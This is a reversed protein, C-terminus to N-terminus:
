NQEVEEEFDGGAAAIACFTALPMLVALSDLCKGFLAFVSVGAIGAFAGASLIPQNDSFRFVGILANLLFCAILAIVLGFTMRNGYSALRCLDGSRWNIASAQSEASPASAAAKPEPNETGPTRTDDGSASAGSPDTGSARVDLGSMLNQVNATFVDTSFGSKAGSPRGLSCTGAALLLAILIVAPLASLRRKASSLALYVALCVVIVPLLLVSSALHAFYLMLGIVVGCLSALNVGRSSFWNVGAPVGPFGKKPTWVALARVGYTAAAMVCCLLWAGLTWEDGLTSRIGSGFDGAFGGYLSM